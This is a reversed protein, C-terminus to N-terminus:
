PGALFTLHGSPSQAYLKGNQVVFNFGGMNISTAALRIWNQLQGFASTLFLAVSQIDSPAGSPVDISTPVQM